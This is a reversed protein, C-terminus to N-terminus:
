THNSEPFYKLARLNVHLSGVFGPRLDRLVDLLNELGKILKVGHLDILVVLHIELEGDDLEV